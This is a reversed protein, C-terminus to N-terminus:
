LTSFTIPFPNALLNFFHSPHLTFNTSSECQYIFYKVEIYLLPYFTATQSFLNHDFFTQFYGNTNTLNAKLTSKWEINRGDEISRISWHLSYSQLCLTKTFYNCTKVIQQVLFFVQQHIKPEYSFLQFLPFSGNPSSHKNGNLTGAMNGHKISVHKRRRVCNLTPTM